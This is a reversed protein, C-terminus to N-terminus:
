FTVPRIMSEMVTYDKNRGSNKVFGFSRYFAELRPKSSGFDNSPTLALSWGNKDATETLQKLVDKAIGQGRLHKPVSILDLTVYDSKSGLHLTVEPYKKKIKEKFSVPTKPLRKVPPKKFQEKVKIYDNFNSGDAAANLANQMGRKEPCNPDVCANPNKAQCKVTTATM